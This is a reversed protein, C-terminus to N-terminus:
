TILVRPLSLPRSVSCTQLAPPLADSRDPSCPVCNGVGHQFSLGSPFWFAQLAAKVELGTKSLLCTTDESCLVASFRSHPVPRKSLAVRVGGGTHGVSLPSSPSLFRYPAAACRSRAGQADATLLQPARIRAGSLLALPACKPSSMAQHCAPPLVSTVCTQRM